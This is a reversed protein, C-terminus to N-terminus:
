TTHTSSNLSIRINILNSYPSSTRNHRPLAAQHHSSLNSTTTTIPPRHTTQLTNSSCRLRVLPYATLINRATGPNCLPIRIFLLSSIAVSSPFADAPYTPMVEELLMSMSGEKMEHLILFGCGRSRRWRSLEDRSNAVALSGRAASFAVRGDLPRPEASGPLFGPSPAGKFCASCGKAGLESM